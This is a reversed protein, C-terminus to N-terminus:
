DSDIGFRKNSVLHYVENRQNKGGNKLIDEMENEDLGFGIEKAILKAIKVSFKEHSFHKVGFKPLITDEFIHSFPGHGM